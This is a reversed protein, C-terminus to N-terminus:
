THKPQGGGRKPSAGGFFAPPFERAQRTGVVQDAQDLAVLRVQESHPVTGVFYAAPIPWEPPGALMTAYRPHHGQAIIRLAVVEESVEGYILAQRSSYGPAGGFSGIPHTLESDTRCVSGLSTQSRQKSPGSLGLCRQVHTIQSDVRDGERHATIRWSGQASQGTWLLAQDLTVRAQTSRERDSSPDPGSRLNALGLGIGAILVAFLVLRIPTM